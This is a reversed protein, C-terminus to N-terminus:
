GVVEPSPPGAVAPRFGALFARLIRQEIRSKQRVPVPIRVVLEITAPNHLVFSVRPEVSLSPLALRSVQREFMARAEELFAACEAGAADLLLAEAARWDADRAISLRFTHLVFTDTFTENVLPHSLFVSNPLVVARGSAQNVEAGPGVELLTTALPGHDIVEGRLGMVEIRDGVHFAGSTTRWLSGSLCLIIEKTALVVAAGLAVLSLLVSRIADNWIVILLGILVLLMANRVSVLWRLREEPTVFPLSGVRRSVAWRLAGVGLVALVTQVTPRQFWSVIELWLDLDM